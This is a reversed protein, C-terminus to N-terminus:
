NVHRSIGRFFRRAKPKEFSKEESIFERKSAVEEDERAVEDLDVSKEAKDLINSINDIGNESIAKLLKKGKRTGLLFVVAAGVLVGLLFGSFFNNGSNNNSNNDMDIKERKKGIIKIM